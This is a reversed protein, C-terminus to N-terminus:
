GVIEIMKTIARKANEKYEDKVQILNKLPTGKNIHDRISQMIELISEPTIKKMNFCESKRLPIIKKDPNEAAIRDVFVTETGVGWKSGAPSEAIMKLIYETSGSYDSNDVVDKDCEPHVVIQIGDIESRLAKIDSVKFNKHVHCNGNWLVAREGSYRDLSDSSIADSEKYGLRKVTNIGLNYDPFFLIVYDEDLYKKVIKSANSSTCVSGGHRGCFSKLDAYSNMYVIPAIRKNTLKTMKEYVAEVNEISAMDAMPCGAYISPLLVKQYDKKLIDSCEAMFMVGCFIIFEKDTKSCEVALKYSDGIIDAFDTIESGQYHHSAVIIRDKLEDKLKKIDDFIKNM